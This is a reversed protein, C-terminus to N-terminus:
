ASWVSSIEKADLFSNVKASFLEFQTQRGLDGAWKCSQLLAICLFQLRNEEYDFNDLDIQLPLQSAMLYSESLFGQTSTDTQIVASYTVDLTIEYYGDPFYTANLAVGGSTLLEAPTVAYYSNASTGFLNVYTADLGIHNVATPATKYLRHTYTTSNYVVTLDVITVNGWTFPAWTSQDYLKFTEADASEVVYISLAM